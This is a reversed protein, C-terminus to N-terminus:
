SPHPRKELVAVPIKRDTFTRYSDFGSYVATALAWCEDREPGDPLERASVSWRNAGVQVDGGGAAMLNKYWNPTTASGAGSGVVILDDGRPVYMLMVPRSEGSSRGVVDLLFVPRGALTNRKRGDSSRYADVHSVTARRGLSPLRRAVLNTLRASARDLTSMKTTNREPALTALAAATAAKDPPLDRADLCTLAAQM